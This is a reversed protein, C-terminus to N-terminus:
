DTEMNGAHLIKKNTSNKRNNKWFPIISYFFKNGGRTEKIIIKLRANNIIAVFGYYFVEVLGGEWRSNIKQKEFRKTEFYEQITHSNKIIHGALPLLKFRLYQEEPSRPKNKEKFKLHEIGKSNFAVECKLYPCFVSGIKNYETISEQKTKELKEKSIKIKKVDIDVM